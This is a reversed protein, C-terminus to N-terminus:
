PRLNNIGLFIRIFTVKLFYRSANKKDNAQTFMIRLLSYHNKLSSLGSHTIIDNMHKNVNQEYGLATRLSNKSITEGSHECHYIYAPDPYYSFSCIKALRIATDWEQFSLISEDLLGIEVLKSKKVLLGQFLIFSSSLIASFINGEFKNDCFLKKEESDMSIQYGPSYIADNKDNNVKSFRGSLSNQTLEDDSDLFAIWDGQSHQIGYNRAHQAGHNPYYSLYKIRKDLLSYYHIVETTNDTSGDDVIIIEFDDMSQSLVSEIARGILHARNYTPIIVSIFVM